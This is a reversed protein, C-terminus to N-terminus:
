SKVGGGIRMESMLHACRTRRERTNTRRTEAWAHRAGVAHLLALEHLPQQIRVVDVLDCGLVIQDGVNHVRTQGRVARVLRVDKASRLILPICHTASASASTKKVPCTERPSKACENNDASCTDNM